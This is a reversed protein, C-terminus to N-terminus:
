AALRQQDLMAYCREEAEAPPINGIAELLRRNNFWTLAAFEVVEVSGWSGCRHIVDTKYPGIITEALVNDYSDGVSCVSPEIGAKALLETYRIRVYQSGRTRITSSAEAIGRAANTFLTSSLM